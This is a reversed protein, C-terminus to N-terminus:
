CTPVLGWGPCVPKEKVLGVGVGTCVLGLAPLLLMAHVLSDVVEVLAGGAGLGAVLPSQLSLVFLAAKM